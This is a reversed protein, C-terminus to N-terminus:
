TCNSSPQTRFGPTQAPGDGFPVCTQFKPHLASYSPWPATSPDSSCSVYTSNPSPPTTQRNSSSNNKPLILRPLKLTNSCCFQFAFSILLPQHNSSTTRPGMHPISAYTTNGPGSQCRYHPHHSNPHTQSQSLAFVSPYLLSPSSPSPPVCVVM